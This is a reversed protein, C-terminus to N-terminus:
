APWRVYPIDVGFEITLMAAVAEGFAHKDPGSAGRYVTAANSGGPACWKPDYAVEGNRFQKYALMVDGDSDIWVFFGQLTVNYRENRIFRVCSEYVDEAYSVNM